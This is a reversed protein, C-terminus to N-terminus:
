FETSVLGFELRSQALALIDSDQVTPVTLTEVTRIDKFNVSVPITNGSSADRNTNIVEVIYDTLPSAWSSLINVLVGLDHLQVLLDRLNTMRDGQVPAAFVPRDGALTDVPTNALLGSLTVVPPYVIYHDNIRAGTQIPHETAQGPYDIKLNRTLDFTFADFLPTQTQPVLTVSKRRGQGTTAM